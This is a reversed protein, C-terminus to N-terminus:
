GFSHGERRLVEIAQDLSDQPVLLYDTDYTSIVFISISRRALPIALTKLVGVMHLPLPGVIGIGRWEKECIVDKPVVEQPCIISLEDLTRTISVFHSELAWAPIEDTLDLRCIAFHDKLVTLTFTENSM